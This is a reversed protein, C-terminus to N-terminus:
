HLYLIQESRYQYQQFVYLKPDAVFFHFLAYILSAITVCAFTPSMFMPDDVICVDTEFAFKSNRAFPM